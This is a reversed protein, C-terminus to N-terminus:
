KVKVAKYRIVTYSEAVRYWSPVPMRLRVGEAEEATKYEGAMTVWYKDSHPYKRFQLVYHKKEM